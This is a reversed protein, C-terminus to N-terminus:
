NEDVTGGLQTIANKYDQYSRRYLKEPKIKGSLYFLLDFLYSPFRDLIFELDVHEFDLGHPRGRFGSYGIQLCPFLYSLDGIDGAAAIPRNTYCTFNQYNERTFDLCIDSLYRDQVFPLYGQETEITLKGGFAHASGEALRDMQKSLSTLYDLDNSRIDTGLKVYSPITNIGRSSELIVPNVRVMKLENFQQRLLGLNNQFSTAMSLANIGDWPAFGCHSSLGEFHYYKYLFGVLDSLFEVSDEEYYGGMTHTCIGFDYDDFVGLRMGEPKGGYYFIEGQDRLDKRHDLDVYEEAPVFIFDIAYDLDQYAKNELCLKFLALAIGVQTYHGCVHAAGTEQDGHVYGPLYLADLEAVFCMKLDKDENGPLSFKLGTRAFEQYTIDPCYKKMYALVADRTKWEEYGLEPHNFIDLTIKKIEEFDTKKM